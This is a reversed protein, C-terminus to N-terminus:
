RPVPCLFFSVLSRTSPRRARPCAFSTGDPGHGERDSPDLDETVIFEDDVRRALEACVSLEVLTTEGDARADEDEYAELWDVRVLASTREAYCKAFSEDISLVLASPSVDTVEPVRDREEGAFLPSDLVRDLDQTSKGADEYVTGAVVRAVTEMLWMADQVDQHAMALQMPWPSTAERWAPIVCYPLACADMADAAAKFKSTGAVAPGLSIQICGYRRLECMADTTAAAGVSTRLRRAFSSFDTIRRPIFMARGEPDYAELESDDSDTLDGLYTNVDAVKDYVGELNLDRKLKEEAVAREARKAELKARRVLRRRELEAEEEAVDIERREESARVRDILDDDGSERVRTRAAEIARYLEEADGTGDSLRRAEALANLAEVDDGLATRAQSLRYWAKHWKPANRVCARADRLANADDKARLRALARNCLAMFNRPDVELAKTFAEIASDSEGRAYAECAVRHHERGDRRRKEAAFPAWSTTM